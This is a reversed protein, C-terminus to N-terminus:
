GPREPPLSRLVLTNRGQLEASLRYSQMIARLADDGKTLLFTGSVLSEPDLVASSDIHYSTYPELTELAEVLPRQEFVLVGAEWAGIEALPRREVPGLVGDTVRVVESAALSTTARGTEPRVSVAGERVQVEVAGDGRRHVVFETGLVTAVAGASVVSFPLREKFWV